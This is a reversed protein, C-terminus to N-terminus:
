RALSTNLKKITLGDAIVVRNGDKSFFSPVKGNETTSPFFTVWLTEGWAGRTCNPPIAYAGRGRDLFAKKLMAAPDESCMIAAFFNYSAPGGGLLSPIMAVRPELSSGSTKLMSELQLCAPCNPATFLFNTAGTKASSDNQWAPVIAEPRISNRLTALVTSKENENLAVLKGNTRRHWAPGIGILSVDANFLSGPEGNMEVLFWGHFPAEVIRRGPGPPFFKRFRKTAQELSIEDTVSWTAPDDNANSSANALNNPRKGFISFVSNTSAPSDTPQANAANMGAVVTVVLVLSTFKM